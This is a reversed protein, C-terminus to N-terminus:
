ENLRPLLPPGPADEVYAIEQVMMGHSTHISSNGQISTLNQDFNDWVSHFLVNSTGRAIAPTLVSSAEDLADSTANEIELVKWYSICHGLRNLVTIM